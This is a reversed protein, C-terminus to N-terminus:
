CRPLQRTTSRSSSRAWRWAPTSHRLAKAAEELPLVQEVDIRLAGRDIEGVLTALAESNPMAVVNTGTLGRAVVPETSAANM